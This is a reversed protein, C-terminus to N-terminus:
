RKVHLPHGVSIFVAKFCIFLVCEDSRFASGVPDHTCNKLITHSLNCLISIGRGAAAIEPLGGMTGELEGGSDTDRCHELHAFTSDKLLSRAATAPSFICMLRHKVLLLLVTCLSGTTFSLTRGERFRLGTCAFCFM